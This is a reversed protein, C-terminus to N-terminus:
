EVFEGLWAFGLALHFLLLLFFPQLHIGKELAFDVFKDLKPKTLGFGKSSKEHYKMKDTTTRKM